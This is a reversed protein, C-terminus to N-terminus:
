NKKKKFFVHSNRQKGASGTELESSESHRVEVTDGGCHSLQEAGLEGDIVPQSEAGNTRTM